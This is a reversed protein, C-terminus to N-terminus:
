VRTTYTLMCNNFQCGSAHKLINSETLAKFLQSHAMQCVYYVLVITFPGFHDIYKTSQTTSSVVKVKDSDNELEGILYLLFDATGAYVELDKGYTKWITKGIELRRLERETLPVENDINIVEVQSLDYFNM